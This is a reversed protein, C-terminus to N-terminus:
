WTSVPRYGNGEPPGDSPSVAASGRDIAGLQAVQRVLDHVVSSRAMAGSRPSRYPLAASNRAASWDIPSTCRLGM